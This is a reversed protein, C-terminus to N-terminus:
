LDMSAAYYADITGVDRWYPEQSAPDGPIENTQFDYAYMPARGVLRPLIDRGFDHSSSEIEADAYLERLLLDTSFVYNGHLRLRSPSRGAHHARGREKRSFGYHLRR